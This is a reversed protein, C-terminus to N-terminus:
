KFLKKLEIAIIEPNSAQVIILGNLEVRQM